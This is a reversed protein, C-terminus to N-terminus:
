RFLKYLEVAAYVVTAIAIVGTLYMNIEGLRQTSRSFEQIAKTLEWGMKVGIKAVEKQRPWALETGGVKDFLADYDELVPNSTDSKQSM